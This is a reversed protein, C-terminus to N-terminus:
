SSKLGSPAFLCQQGWGYLTPNFCKQGLNRLGTGQVALPLIDLLHQADDAVGDVPLPLTLYKGLETVAGGEQGHDRVGEGGVDGGQLGDGQLSEGGPDGGLDTHPHAVYELERTAQGVAVIVDPLPQHPHGPHHQM